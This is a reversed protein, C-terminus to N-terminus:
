PSLVQWQAQATVNNPSTVVLKVTYKGCDESISGPNNTLTTASSFVLTQDATTNMKAGGTHWIEWHFIVTTPGNTTISGTFDNPNPGGCTGHVITADISIKAKIVYAQPIPVIPVSAADGSIVVVPDSVWCKLAPNDPDQIQWWGRDSNTGLIPVSEGPNLDSLVLYAPSPGYRCNVAVSLPTVM